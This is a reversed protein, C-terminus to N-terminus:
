DEDSLWSPMEADPILPEPKQRPEDALAEAVAEAEQEGPADEAAEVPEDGLDSVISENAADFIEKWAGDGAVAASLEAAPDAELVDGTLPVHDHLSQRVEAALAAFLFVKEAGHQKLEDLV